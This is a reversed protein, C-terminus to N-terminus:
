TKRESKYFYKRIFGELDPSLRFLFILSTYVIAMAGSRVIIDLILSPTKYDVHNLDPILGSIFFTLVGIGLILLHRYSYPQMKFKQWLFGYRMLGYCFASIASGIAAGTIGFLHIFIFNSIIVLGGFIAVFVTLIKYFKSTSIIVGNVGAAMLFLNSLGIFFIVWKGDAYEPPLIHLINHINAWLGIFVLVGIILQDITSKTYIRNIEEIKNDKWAQAVVVASIKSLVRLPIAVLTGYFFSRGYVGTAAVGLISGIMIKDINQILINSFSVVIGFLAVSVISSALQKNIFGKPYHFVLEKDRTLSVLILIGPLSLAILYALVFGSFDIFKVFYIGIAILIFIRQLFEKYFIGKVAKFLVAYYIDIVLFLAIFVALPIILDAYNAFLDTEELSKTVIFPRMIFYIGTTLILGGALVIFVIGLYGNHHNAKNRFYPFLRNSVNNIGLTAFTAFVLAWANLLDLVGNLEPDFLNPLILGATVFGIAVGVYTLITGQLGQKEIVGVHIRKILLLM